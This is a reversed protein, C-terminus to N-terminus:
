ALEENKVELGLDDTIFDKFTLHSQTLDHGQFVSQPTFQVVIVSFSDLWEYVKAQQLAHVGKDNRAKNISAIDTKWYLSHKLWIIDGHEAKINDLIIKKYETEAPTSKTIM